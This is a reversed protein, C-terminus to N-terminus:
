VRVIERTGFIGRPRFLLFALLMGYCIPDVWIGNLYYAVLTQITAVILGGVLAGIISDVGGIIVVPFILLGLQGINVPDVASQLALAVGAIASCVSAIAWALGAFRPIHVRQLAALLTSDAVARMRVGTRTTRLIIELLVILVIAVVITVIDLTTLPIGLPSVLTNNSFINPLERTDPGWVILGATELLISLGFTAIVVTFLSAGVLRYFIVMNVVIGLAIMAILAALIAVLSNLHLEVKFGYFFYAGLVMFEGQAFNVVGTARFLIVFGVGVLAYISGTTISQSTLQGAVQGLM